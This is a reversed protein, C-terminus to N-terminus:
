TAQGNNRLLLRINNALTIVTALDTAAAGLAPPAVPAVNNCSFWGTVKMTQNTTGIVVSASGNTWLELPVYASGFHNSRVSVASASAQFHGVVSPNVASSAFVDLGGITGSGNPVIGVSTNGNTTSSQLMVRSAPTANTFDGTIRRGATTGILINSDITVLPTAPNVVVVNAGGSGNKITVTSEFTAAGVVRVTAGISFAGTVGVVGSADSGMEGFTTGDTHYLRMKKGAGVGLGFDEVKAASNAFTAVADKPTGSLLWAQHMGGTATSRVRVTHNLTTLPTSGGRINKHDGADEVLNLRGGANGLDRDILMNLRRVIEEPKQSTVRRLDTSAM